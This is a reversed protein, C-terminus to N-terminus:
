PSEVLEFRASRPQAAVRVRGGRPVGQHTITAQRSAMGFAQPTPMAINGPAYSPVEGTSRDITFTPVVGVAGLRAPQWGALLFARQRGIAGASASPGYYDSPPLATWMAFPGLSNAADLSVPSTAPSCRLM